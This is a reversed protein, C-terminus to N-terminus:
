YKPGLETKNHLRYMAAGCTKNFSFSTFPTLSFLAKKEQKLMFFLLRVCNPPNISATLKFLIQFYIFCNILQYLLTNKSVPKIQM